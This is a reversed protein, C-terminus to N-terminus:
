YLADQLGHDRTFTQYLFNSCQSFISKVIIKECECM